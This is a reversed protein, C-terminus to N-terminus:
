RMACHGLFIFTRLPGFTVIVMEPPFRDNACKSASEICDLSGVNHRARNESGTNPPYKLLTELATPRMSLATLDAVM